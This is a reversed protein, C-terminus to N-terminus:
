DKKSKAGQLTEVQKRLEDIQKQMKELRQEMNPGAAIVPPLEGPPAPANFYMFNGQGAGTPSTFLQFHEQPGLLQKIEPRIKEPIKSLDDSTGELKEKGNGKDRTVVVKAPDSGHRTIEVHYGDSLNAKTHVTVEVTTTANGHGGGGGAAFPVFQGPRVISFRLPQGPTMKPGLKELWARAEDSDGKPRKALKAVVTERKGDRQLEITLKGEKVDNVLKLLERFDGLSKDNAKLLVDDKKIGADAAPSKPEVSEVLLGQDKPLKLKAQMEPSPRSILVGLWGSPASDVFTVSDPPTTEEAGAGIAFLLVASAAAAFAKRNLM